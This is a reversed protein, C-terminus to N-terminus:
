FSKVPQTTRKWAYLMDLEGSDNYRSRWQGEVCIPGFIRRLMEGRKNATAQPELTDLPDSFQYGGGAWLFIYMEAM